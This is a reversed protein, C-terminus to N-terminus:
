ICTVKAHTSDYYLLIKKSVCSKLVCGLGVVSMNLDCICWLQLTVLFPAIM